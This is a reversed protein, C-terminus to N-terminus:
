VVSKRDRNNAEGKAIISLAEQAEIKTLIEGSIRKQLYQKM